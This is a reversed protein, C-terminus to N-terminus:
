LLVQFNLSQFGPIYNYFYGVSFHRSFPYQIALHYQTMTRHELNSSKRLAGTLLFGALNTSGTVIHVPYLVLLETTNQLYIYEVQLFILKTGVTLTYFNMGSSTTTEVQKVLSFGATFYPLSLSGGVGPDFKQTHKNYRVSLGANLDQKGKSYFPLAVGFNLTQALPGITTVSSVYDRATTGEYPQLNSNSYFTSDGETSFGLGVKKYGKILAINSKSERQGQTRASTIFELGLPLTGIPVSAPNLNFSDAFSSFAGGLKGKTGKGGCYDAYWDPLPVYSGYQTCLDAAHVSPQSSMLPLLFYFGTKLFFRFM